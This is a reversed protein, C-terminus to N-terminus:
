RRGEYVVFVCFLRILWVSSQTTLALLFTTVAHSQNTGCHSHTWSRVVYHWDAGGARFLLGRVGWVRGTVWCWRLVRHTGWSALGVLPPLTAHLHATMVDAPLRSSVHGFTRLRLCMRRVLFIQDDSDARWWLENGLFSGRDDAYLHEYILMVLIWCYWLVLVTPVFVCVQLHIYNLDSTFQICKYKDWFPIAETFNICM